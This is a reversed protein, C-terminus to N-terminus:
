AADGAGPVGAGGGPTSGGGPAERDDERSGVGEGPRGSEGGGTVGTAGGMEDAAAEGGREEDRQEDTEAM